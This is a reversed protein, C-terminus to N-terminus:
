ALGAWARLLTSLVLALSSHPQRHLASTPLCPQPLVAISLTSCCYAALAQLAFATVPDHGGASEEETRSLDNDTLEAVDPEQLLQSGIGCSEKLM